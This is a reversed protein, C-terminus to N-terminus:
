LLKIHNKTMLVASVIWFITQFISLYYGWHLMQFTHILSIICTYFILVGLIILIVYKTWTPVSKSEPLIELSYLIGILFIFIIVKGILVLLPTNVLFAGLGPEMNQFETSLYEDFNNSNKRQLATAWSFM